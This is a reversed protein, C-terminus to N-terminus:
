RKPDFCAAQRSWGFAGDVWNWYFDGHTAHETYLQQQVQLFESMRAKKGCKYFPASWEGVVAAPIRTSLEEAAKRAQEHVSGHRNECAWDGFFYLHFDLVAGDLTKSQTCLLMWEDLFKEKKDGQFYLPCVVSVREAPMGASRVADVCRVYHRILKKPDIRERSPENCVQIGTVHRKDQYRSAVQKLVDIAEDLRWDEFKWTAKARGCPKEESEGGPNGHLDLLVQLGFEETWEVIDDLKEIDPGLYPDDHTAGSVIWYGFPVRVANFGRSAIEGITERTVHASRHRRLNDLGSMERLQETADWEGEDGDIGMVEFLPISPGRELLLWGGVNVGRWKEHKVQYLDRMARVLRVVDKHSDGRYGKRTNAAYWAAAEAVELAEHPITGELEQRFQAATEAAEQSSKFEESPSAPKPMRELACRWVYANIFSLLLESCWGKLDQELKSFVDEDSQADELFGVASNAAHWAKAMCYDRFSCADEYSWPVPKEM